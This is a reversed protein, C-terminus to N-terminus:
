IKKWRVQNTRLAALGVVLYYIVFIFDLFPAKWGEFAEGLKRSARHALLTLIIIRITFVVIPVYLITSYLLAPVIFLWCGLLSLMFVGSLIKDGIKYRKGVSLHRLKQYYFEMWSTKPTSYVISESGIAIATNQKHGWQNVFLDDDGGTVSLHKNFGKNNLFLSKRYALNRGVGMYPRGLISFGFYQIATLLTEYRIFLNLFGKKKQYPSYGLVIANENSFRTSMERIWHTSNPRCDADTLLVWEHKAAKIGLTLAFKKGHVHEPKNTVRVMRLKHHRKCAEYLFDFSEDNSRDEVIVVEFDHYEQNLLLPLLEQLNQQEDHGCVIVSVPVEKEAPPAEYKGIALWLTLLYIIQIFAFALFIWTIIHM